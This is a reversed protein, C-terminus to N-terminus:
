DFLFHSCWDTASITCLLAVIQKRAKWSLRQRWSLQQKRAPAGGEAVELKQGAHVQKQVLELFMDFTLEQTLPGREDSLDRLFNRTQKPTITLGCKTLLFAVEEIDV